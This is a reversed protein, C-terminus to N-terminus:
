SAPTPDFFFGCISLSTLFQADHLTPMASAADDLHTAHGATSMKHSWFGSRDRRLCHFISVGNMRHDQCVAIVHGSAPCEAPEECEHMLVLGDIAILRQITPCDWEDSVAGGPNPPPYRENLRDRAYSYCNNDLRHAHWRHPEFEPATACWIERGPRGELGSIRRLVGTRTSLQDYNLGIRAKVADPATGFLWREIRQEDDISVWPASLEGWSIIMPFPLVANSAMPRLVFGQYGTPAQRIASSAISHPGAAGAAPRHRALADWLQSEQDPTLPWTPNAISGLCLEVLTM